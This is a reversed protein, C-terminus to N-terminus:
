SENWYTYNIQQIETFIQSAGSGWSMNYGCILDSVYKESKIMREIYTMQILIDNLM